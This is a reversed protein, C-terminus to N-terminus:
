MMLSMLSDAKKNSKDSLKNYSGTMQQSNCSWHGVYLLYLSGKKEETDKNEENQRKREKGRSSYLKM